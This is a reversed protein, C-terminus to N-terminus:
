YNVECQILNRHQLTAMLKVENKFEETGQRSTKSLRKVAIEQGDELIGKYVPGFGGEGLKNRDSFHNTAIDITSFDFITQIDNEETEKMHKWHILKKIIEPKGLNMRKIFSSTAWVLITLGIVFAILGALIGALKKRNMNKNRRQNGMEYELNSFSFVANQIFHFLFCEIISSLLIGNWENRDSGVYCIIYKQLILSIICAISNSCFICLESIDLRIYIEQGRDTHNRMDVINDFWLLCGSGGDRIDLNAYATCSCNRLCLTKCEELSLSKNFWSSSTDPLKMGSYKVFGDGGHCSLKIRRVCGGSWDSSDWKAQFKPIFGQLCKCIPFDNINCNSNVGCVAYYECEDVPRTAITLWSQTEDSWLFRESSGMPNLVTRTLISSNWTEYEYSVEKDTSEFSFNLFRHMRQWSVGTFLYGNWSGARYWITAGKATVLQPMGRIDIRYSFEGQAPDETDRWSTLYNYPGTVLNSKLKMGPLFTNGPYDFSQWLINKTGEGDKVVLNGTKLLQMVPKGAIRSLNSSWVRGRSGDLIVINGQDTLKLVATSNQVPVDRNAVWVVTRASIRKYWIGFYQHRSNEFNFFGAEFTGDLSVLTDNFQLSQNLTITVTHQSSFTAMFCFLTTYMMLMLVKQSEMTNA